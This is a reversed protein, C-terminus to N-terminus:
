AYAEEISAKTSELSSELSESIHRGSIRDESPLVAEGHPIDLGADVMGKLAAYVRNGTSSAALGIDLVASKVGTALAKKGLAYGTLYSAPISKRSADNPWGHEKILSSSKMEVLVRDGEPSYKVLQCTAQTNSVRVVARPSDGRLLRLRRRYDTLGNERRKYRLRQNKGSPM